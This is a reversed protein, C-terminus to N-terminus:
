NQQTRFRIILDTGMERRIKQQNWLMHLHALAEGIAFNFQHVDLERRFMQPVVDAATQGTVCMQEVEALRQAHHERLQAIRAHLGIFPKGHSPLVLTDEPLNDFYHLSDLYLQLPNAEPELAFVSINTSIRPLVMDGSILMKLAECYLAVHEPSHGFGCITRWVYQQWAQRTLDRDIGCDVAVWADGDRLLWLNIHNLAFPLPMRLWAVAENLMFVEGTAPLTEGLPYHLQAEGQLNM